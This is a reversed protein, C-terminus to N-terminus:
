ATANYKTHHSTKNLQWFSKFIEQFQIQFILKPFLFPDRNMKGERGRNRGTPGNGKLGSVKGREKREGM